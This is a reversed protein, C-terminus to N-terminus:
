AEGGGGGGGGSDGETQIVPENSFTIEWHYGARPKLNGTMVVLDLTSQSFKSTDCGYKKGLAVRDKRLTDFIDRSMERLPKRDGELTDSVHWLVAVRSFDYYKDAYRKLERESLTQGAAVRRQVELPMRSILARQMDPPMQSWSKTKESSM